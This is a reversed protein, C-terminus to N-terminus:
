RAVEERQANMHLKEKARALCPPCITHTVNKVRALAKRMELTECWSCVRLPADGVTRAALIKPLQNEDWRTLIGNM